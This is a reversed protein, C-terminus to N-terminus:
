TDYLNNSYLNVGQKVSIPGFVNASSFTFKNSCRAYRAKPQPVLAIYVNYRNPSNNQYFAALATKAQAM